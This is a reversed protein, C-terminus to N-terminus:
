LTDRIHQPLDNVTLSDTLLKAQDITATFDMFICGHGQKTLDIYVCWVETGIDARNELEISVPLEVDIFGTYLRDTIQQVNSM